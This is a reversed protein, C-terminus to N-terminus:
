AWHIKVRPNEQNWTQMILQSTKIERLPFICM